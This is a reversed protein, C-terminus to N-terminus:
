KGGSRAREAELRDDAALWLRWTGGGVEINGKTVSRILSRASELHEREASETARSALAEAEIDALAQAVRPLEDALQISEDIGNEAWAIVTNKSRALEDADVKFVATLALERHRRTM